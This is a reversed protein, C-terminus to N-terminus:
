DQLLAINTSTPRLPSATNLSILTSLPYNIIFNPKPFYKNFITPSALIKRKIHGLIENRHRKQTRIAPQGLSRTLSHTQTHTQTEGEHTRENTENRQTQASNHRHTLTHTRSRSVSVACGLSHTRAFQRKSASLSLSLASHLM